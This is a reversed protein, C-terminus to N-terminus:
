FGWRRGVQRACMGKEGERNRACMGRWERGSWHERRMEVVELGWSHVQVGAFHVTRRSMCTWWCIVDFNHKTTRSCVYGIAFM